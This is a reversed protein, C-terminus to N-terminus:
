LCKAGMSGGRTGRGGMTVTKARRQGAKTRYCRHALSRALPGLATFYLGRGKRRRGVRRRRRERERESQRGEQQLNGGGVDGAHARASSHSHDSFAIGNRGKRSDSFVDTLLFEATQLSPFSLSRFRLEIYRANKITTHGDMDLLGVTWGARSCPETAGTPISM